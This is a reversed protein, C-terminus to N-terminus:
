KFANKLYRKIVQYGEEAHILWEDYTRISRIMRILRVPNLYLKRVAIQKLRKLEARSLTDTQMVVHSGSQDFHQVSPDIYGKELAQHRMETGMRPVAVNLSAYTCPLSRAFEITEIASEWTEGPLGLLFTAVTRIGLTDALALIRQVDQRTYGKRYHKLLSENATEVGFIITHCGAQKMLELRSENVLDVRSFCLWRLDPFHQIFMECMKENRKPDSGFSQDLFFVDRIGMKKLLQLEEFLSELPRRKCGLTGMVCFSCTFPCGFETMVTSFRQSRIFPYRYPLPLFLEHRPLPPDFTGSRERVQRHDHFCGDTDKFVLGPYHGKEGRAYRALADTTFDDLVADISPHKQLLTLPQELFIDGSCVLKTEPLIQRIKDFFTIDEPWTANGTLSYILQPKLDNIRKLCNEVSFKGVIADILEVHFSQSLYGSQFLLDIPHNIYSAQSIKSCFNDRIAIDKSPPNLLLATPHVNM